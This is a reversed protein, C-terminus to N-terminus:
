NTSYIVIYDVASIDNITVGEGIVPLVQFQYSILDLILEKESEYEQVIPSSEDVEIEVVYTVEINITKM